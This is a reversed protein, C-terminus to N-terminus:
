SPAQDSYVGLGVPIARGTSGRPHVQLVLRHVVRHITRRVVHHNRRHKIHKTIRQKLRAVMQTSGGGDLAFGKSAGLAVLLGSMQNEDVGYHDSARTAEVTVLMLTHGGPKWAIDTRAAYRESARCYLDTEVVGPAV